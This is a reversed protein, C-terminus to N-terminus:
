CMIGSVKCNYAAIMMCVIYLGFICIIGLIIYEIWEKPTKPYERNM